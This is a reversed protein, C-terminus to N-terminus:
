VTSDYTMTLTATITFYLTGAVSDIRDSHGTVFLANEDTQDIVIDTYSSAGEVTYVWTGCLNDQNATTEQSNTETAKTFSM